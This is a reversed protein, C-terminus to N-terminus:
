GRSETQKRAAEFARRDASLWAPEGDTIRDVHGGDFPFSLDAPSRRAPRVRSAPADTM